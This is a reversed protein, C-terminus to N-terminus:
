HLLYVCVIAVHNGDDEWEDDNNSEEIASELARDAILVKNAPTPFPDQTAAFVHCKSTGM